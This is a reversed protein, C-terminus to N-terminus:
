CNFSNLEYCIAAVIEPPKPTADVRICTDPQEFAAFQSALLEPPMFHGKRHTVREQLLAPPADLLVWVCDRETKTELRCRVFENLASCALVITDGSSARIASAMNDIWQVRDSNDLPRGNAQKDINAPPHFSDGELFPSELANALLAGVTSKGSGAVGMVVIVRM